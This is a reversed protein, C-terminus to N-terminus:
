GDLDALDKAARVSEHRWVREPVVHNGAALRGIMIGANSGLRAALADTLDDVQENTQAIVMVREGRRALDIDATVVLTSKGARAATRGRPTRGTPSTRRGSSNM